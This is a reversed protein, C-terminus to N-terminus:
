KAVTAAVVDPRKLLLEVTHSPQAGVDRWHKVRATDLRIENRRPDYTGLREIFRGGRPSRQDAVVIRYFPTKKTGARALRIHVAM